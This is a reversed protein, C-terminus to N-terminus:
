FELKVGASLAWNHATKGEVGVSTAEEFDFKGIYDKALLRLSVNPALTIDAGVGANAAFSTATTSLYSNSITYHIAGAGAQLFPSIPRLGREMVPLSLQLGGDYLWATNTGISIGGVFPLGVKLDASSRAVNGIVAINPTVNIGLQAGYIAGGATTLSTGLPGELMKGFLMVGAYPTVQAMPGRTLEQARLPSAALTAVAAALVFRRLM